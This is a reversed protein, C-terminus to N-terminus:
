AETPDTLRFGPLLSTWEVALRDGLFLSTELGLCSGALLADRRGRPGSQHIGMEPFFRRGQRIWYSLTTEPRGDPVCLGGLVVIGGGAAIGERGVTYVINWTGFTNVVVDDGPVVTATGKGDSHSAAHPKQGASEVSEASDVSGVYFTLLALSTLLFTLVNFNQM